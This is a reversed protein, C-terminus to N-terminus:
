NNNLLLLFVLMVLLFSYYFAVPLWLSCAIGHDEQKPVWHCFKLGDIIWLCIVHQLMDTDHPDRFTVGLEELGWSSRCLGQSRVESRDSEEGSVASQDSPRRGPGRHVVCTGAVLDRCRSKGQRSSCGWINLHSAGGEQECWQECTIENSLAEKVEGVMVM